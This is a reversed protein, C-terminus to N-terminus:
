KYVQSNNALVTQGSEAIQMVLPDQCRHKDPDFWQATSKIKAESGSVFVHNSASDRSNSMLDYLPKDIIM